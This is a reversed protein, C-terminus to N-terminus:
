GVSTGCARDLGCALWALRQAGKESTITSGQAWGRKRRWQRSTVASRLTPVVSVCGGVVAQDCVREAQSVRWRVLSASAPIDRDIYGHRAM